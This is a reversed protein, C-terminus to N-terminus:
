QRRCPYSPNIASDRSGRHCESCLNYSGRLPRRCRSSMRLFRVNSMLQTMRCGPIREGRRGFGCLLNGGSNAQSLRTANLVNPPPGEDASSSSSSKVRGPVDVDYVAGRRKKSDLIIIMAYRGVGVHCCSMGVLLQRFPGHEAISSMGLIPNSIGVNRDKDRGLNIRRKECEARMRHENDKRPGKESVMDRIRRAM